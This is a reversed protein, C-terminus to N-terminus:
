KYARGRTNVEYVLIESTKWHVSFLIRYKGVRLRFANQISALKRIDLHVNPYNELEIIKILLRKQENRNLKSIKKSVEPSIFLSFM